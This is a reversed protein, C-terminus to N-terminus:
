NEPPPPAEETPIEELAPEEVSPPTEGASAPPAEEIESPVEDVTSPPLAEDVPPPLAEEGEAPLEEPVPPPVAEDLSPPVIEDGPGPPLETGDGEPLAPPLGQVANPDEGFEETGDPNKKWGELQELERKEEEELSSAPPLRDLEDLETDRKEEEQTRPRFGNKSLVDSIDTLLVLTSGEVVPSMSSLVVGISFEETTHMVLIDADIIFDSDTFREGTGPDWYQYSRFVMGPQVGDDSGRDIFVQKYQATAYASSGKHLILTAELPAPGAKPQTFKVKRVLPLLTDGRQIEASNDLIEGVYVGEKLALIKLTGSNEHAWGSRDSKRSKILSPDKRTVSYTEGITLDGDAEIYVMDGKGIFLSESRSGTIVGISEAQDTMPIAELQVGRDPWTRMRDMATTGAQSGLIPSENTKTLEIQSAEWKQTPLAKWEESRPREVPPAPEKNTAQSLDAPQELPSLPVSTSADSPAKGIDIVSVGPLSTSTGGLFAVVQGPRIKHPNLITGNNLAWIKPWYKADGFLEKSIGYLTNGQVVPFKLETKDGLVQAWQENSITPIRKSIQQEQEERKGREGMRESLKSPNPAAFSTTGGLFAAISLTVSLREVHAMIQPWQRCTPRLWSATKEIPATM